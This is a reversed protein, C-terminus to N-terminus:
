FGIGRELFIGFSDQAPANGFEAAKRYYKAARVLDREIGLGYELCRGINYLGSPHTQSAAKFYYNVALAINVDVGEGRELCCGFSKASDSNGSEAAKQFLASAVTFDIPVGLDNQLNQAGLRIRFCATKRAWPFVVFCCFPLISLSQLITTQTCDFQSGHFM